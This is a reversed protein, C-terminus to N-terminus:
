GTASRGSLITRIGELLRSMLPLDAGAELGRRLPEAVIADVEVPRGMEFDVLMSPRYAGMARTGSLNWGPSRPDLEVGCASAATLVEDMLGKAFAEREGGDLVHDTTVGGYYISLGSFPVNWVLKNWKVKRGDSLNQCEVGAKGFRESLDRCLVEIRERGEPFYPAVALGGVAFHRVVGPDGREACIFAAGAVVRTPGIASAIIEEHGLGNMLCVAVGREGLVRSLMGPLLPSQASKFGVIAVDCTPMDDVSKWANVPGTWDGDVSEIRLGHDRVHEYESRYLFHVDEGSAALRGGYYGGVAGAGLIAIRM